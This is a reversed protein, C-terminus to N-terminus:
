FRISHTAIRTVYLLPRFIAVSVVIVVATAMTAATAMATATDTAIADWLKFLYHYTLSFIAFFHM